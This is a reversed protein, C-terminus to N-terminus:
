FNFQLFSLARTPLMITPTLETKAPIYLNPTYGECGNGIDVIQLLPKIEVVTNNRLCRIQIKTTTLSSIAWLYGDLSYPLDANQPKLKMCCIQRIKPLNNMFLAYICWSTTDVPYMAQDFMCLHGQSVMFLKINTTDPLAMYM